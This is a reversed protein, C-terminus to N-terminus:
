EHTAIVLLKAFLMPEDPMSVALATVLAVISSTVDKSLAALAAVKTNNDVCVALADAVIEKVVPNSEV